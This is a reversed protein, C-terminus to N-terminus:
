QADVEASMKGKAELFATFIDGNPLRYVGLLRLEQVTGQLQVNGRRQNLVKELGQKMNEIPQAMDVTFRQRLRDRVEGQAFWNATKLLADNTELTYDLDPFSLIRTGADYSPTGKLYGTGSLDGTFTLKVVMQSGEGYVDAGTVRVNYGSMSMTMGGQDLDLAKDLRAQVFSEQMDVPIQLKFTDAPAAMEAPPLSKTSSPPKKGASVVPRLRLQIGTRLQGEAVTVPVVGIGEPNLALWVNPRLETPESMRTWGAAVRKRLDL